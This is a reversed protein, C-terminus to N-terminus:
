GIFLSQAFLKCDTTERVFTLFWNWDDEFVHFKLAAVPDVNKDLTSDNNFQFGDLVDCWNVFSDHERVQFERSVPYTQQDVEM